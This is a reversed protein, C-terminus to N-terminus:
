FAGFHGVFHAMYYLCFPFSRLYKLNIIIKLLGFFPGNIKPNSYSMDAQLACQASDAAATEYELDFGLNIHNEVSEHHEPTNNKMPQPKRRNM